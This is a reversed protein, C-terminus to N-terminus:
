TRSGSMEPKGEPRLARRLFTELNAGLRAVKQETSLTEYTVLTTTRRKDRVYLSCALDACIYTGVSHGAQGARGARPAVMLAVDGVTLCLACMTKRAGRSEHALRLGLGSLRGDHEAVLYARLPAKPDRWGLFDLDSWPQEALDGPLNVRSAEGKTLNVFARRVQLSTLPTMTM